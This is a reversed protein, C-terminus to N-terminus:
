ATNFVEVMDKGLRPWFKSYFEKSLGDIGTFKNNAMQKLAATAEKNTIFGECLNIYNM